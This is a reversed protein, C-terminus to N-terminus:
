RGPASVSPDIRKLSGDGSVRSGRAVAEAAAFVRLFNEGLVKKVDGESYGRRLLEYTLRPLQAVDHMEEVLTPVGDFDAGIGVHDIGAVKVVHDFHDVLRSLPTVPLPSDAFLKAREKKLTQPDTKYRERLAELEPKFREDRAKAADVAAQDVFGPYFPIMVVGGNKAIRRLLEDPVNRPVAALARVGSHTAVVPARTVDLVDSMTEDSVHSVDVLMGIRNMEAVVERGFDSLGGHRATDCCADAWNNTNNHTLTMYRVGLRHFDRLAALSDEIAHGGEIGMLAAIRGKKKARRIDGASFALALDDPHREVARYVHDILELARRAAGRDVYARDVYVSFFEASLGGEKMRPLDTHYRGASPTGLDYSDDVMFSLIDNHTDIVIAERHLRQAKQWLGEDLATVALLSLGLALSLPSVSPSLM